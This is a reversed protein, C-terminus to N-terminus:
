PTAQVPLLATVRWSGDSQAAARVSGGVARARERMGLLGLGGGALDVDAHGLDGSDLNASHLDGSDLNAPGGNALGANAAVTNVPSAKSQCAASPNVIEIAVTNEDFTVGLQASGTGHKHANTLGEQVLRYAVLDVASPLPLETGTLRWDVDLGSAKFSDILPLLQGFSPAPDTPVGPDDPQRLVGLLGGLEDLVARTSRRVHGLAQEAAQPQAELLHEAVAAQVNIVAIHHAVVDHLEQAIRLREEVVRRRAEEERTQEARLAREEIAAIYARRSRVADGLAASCGIWGLLSLNKPDQWDGSFLAAGLVVVPGIVLAVKIAIRRDTRLAVTYAAAVVALTVPSWSRTMGMVFWSGSSTLVLVLVPHASRFVLLLYVVVEVVLAGVAVRGSSQVTHHERQTTLAVALLGGSVLADAYHPHCRAEQRLREGVSM